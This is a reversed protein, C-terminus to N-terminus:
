GRPHHRPRTRLLVVPVSSSLATSLPPSQGMAGVHMQVEEMADLLKSLHSDSLEELWHVRHSPVAGTRAAAWGCGGADGGAGRRCGVQMEGADRRCGGADGEQLGGTDERCGGQM